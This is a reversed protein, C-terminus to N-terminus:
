RSREIFEDPGLPVGPRRPRARHARVDIVLRPPHLVVSEESGQMRPVFAPGPGSPLRLQTISARTGDLSNPVGVRM